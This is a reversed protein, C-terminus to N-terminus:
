KKERLHFLQDWQWLPLKTFTEVDCRYVGLQGAKATMWEHGMPHVEPLNDLFYDVNMDSGKAYREEVALAKVDQWSDPPFDARAYMSQGKMLMELMVGYKQLYRTGCQRCYYRQGTALPNDHLRDWLSNVIVTCCPATAHGTAKKLKRPVGTVITSRKLEM